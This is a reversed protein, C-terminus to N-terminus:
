IGLAALLGAYTARDDADAALSTNEIGGGEDQARAVRQAFHRVVDALADVEGCHFRRSLSGFAECGDILLVGEASCPRESHLRVVLTATSTPWSLCFRCHLAAAGPTGDHSSPWCVVCAGSPGVLSCELQGPGNRVERSRSDKHLWRRLPQIWATLEATATGARSALADPRPLRLVIANVM